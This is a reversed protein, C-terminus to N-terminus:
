AAGPAVLQAIGRLPVGIWDPRNSMEYRLEYLAKEIEFLRLLGAVDAFSAYLGAGRAAAEYASLFVARTHREWDAALAQERELAADSQTHRQLASARAYSFSRLMGAVDRLPSSKVRREDFTRGPEGEFDIIIFD